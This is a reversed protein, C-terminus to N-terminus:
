IKKSTILNYIETFDGDPYAEVGEELYRAVVQGLEDPTAAATVEKLYLAVDKEMLALRFGTDFSGTMVRNPFKDSSATNRGTSVNIVEIMTKMDLGNKEGFTVAESTAVMAVASLFNNM